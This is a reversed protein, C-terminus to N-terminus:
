FVKEYISKYSREGGINEKFRMLGPKENGHHDLSIGLDLISIGESQCFIYIEETLMVAPSYQAYSSLNSSLFHYLISQSIRVTVNLAIIKERDKVTFVIIEKPFAIFLEQLQLSNISLSYGKEARCHQLFDYVIEIAPEEYIDSTFGSIKCKKLRRKESPHIM